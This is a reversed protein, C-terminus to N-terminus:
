ASREKVITPISIRRIARLGPWQSVLAVVLIAMAAWVFTTAEIHLDFAFLDSSFSAMASRAAFYGVVLGLPIGLLAVLLNEATIYRSISRRDTGVALM